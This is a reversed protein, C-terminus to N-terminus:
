TAPHHEDRARKMAALRAKVDEPSPLLEEHPQYNKGSGLASMDGLLEEATVQPLMEPHAPALQVTQQPVQTDFQELTISQAPANQIPADSVPAPASPRIEPQWAVTQTELSIPGLKQPAQGPVRNVYMDNLVIDESVAQLVPEKKAKPAEQGGVSEMSDRAQRRRASVDPSVFFQAKTAAEASFVPYGPQEKLEADCNFLMQAWINLGLGALLLPINSAVISLSGTVLIMLLSASYIGLLILSAVRHGRAAIWGFLITAAAFLMQAVGTGMAMYFKFPGRVNKDMTSLVGVFFSTGFWLAGLTLSFFFLKRYNAKLEQMRIHNNEYAERVEQPMENFMEM